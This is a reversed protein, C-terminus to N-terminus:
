NFNTIQVDKATVIDGSQSGTVLVSDNVSVKKDRTNFTTSGTTKVTTKTGNGGIDFSDVNVATIVGSVVSVNSTNSTNSTQIYVTNRHFSNHRSSFMEDMMDGMDGYGRHWDTLRFSSGVILLSIFILIIIAALFFPRGRSHPRDTTIVEKKENDMVTQPSEVTKDTKEVEKKPM